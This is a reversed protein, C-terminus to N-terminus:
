KILYDNCSGCHINVMDHWLACREADESPVHWLLSSSRTTAVIGVQAGYDTGILTSVIIGVEAEWKLAPSLGNPNHVIMQSASYVTNSKGPQHNIHHGHWLM